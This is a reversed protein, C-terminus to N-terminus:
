DFQRTIRAVWRGGRDLDADWAVEGPFRFRLYREYQRPDGHGSIWLVEGRELLQFGRALREARRDVSFRDLDLTDENTLEGTTM